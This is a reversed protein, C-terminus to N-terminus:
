FVTFIDQTKSEDYHCFVVRAFKACKTADDDKM